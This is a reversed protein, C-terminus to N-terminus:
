RSGTVIEGAQIVCISQTLISRNVYETRLLLLLLNDTYAYRDDMYMKLFPNFVVRGLSKGKECGGRWGCWGMWGWFKHAEELPRVSKHTTCQNRAQAHLYSSSINNSFRSRLEASMSDFPNCQVVAVSAFNDRNIIVTTGKNIKIINRSSLHEELDNVSQSSDDAETGGGQTPTETAIRPRRFIFSTEPPLGLEKLLKQKLEQRKCHKRPYVRGISDLKRQEQHAKIALPSTKSKYNGKPVGSREKRARSAKRPM